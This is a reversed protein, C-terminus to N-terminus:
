EVQALMSELKDTNIKTKGIDYFRASVNVNMMLADLELSIYTLKGGKVTFQLRVDFSRLISKASELEEMMELYMTPDNFVEQSGSAITYLLEYLDPELIYTNGDQSFGANEKLWKANNLNDWVKDLYKDLKKFNVYQCAEEYANPGAQETILEEWDIDDEVSDYAEFIQHLEEAINEGYVGYDSGTLTYGKYIAAVIGNHEAYFTVDEKKEDVAAQFSVTQSEGGMDVSVEATFNKSLLTNQAGDWLVEAAGKRAFLGTALAVILFIVLVTGGLAPWLIKQPINKVKEIVGVKEKPQQPKKLQAGCNSCVQADGPMQQGCATCFVPMPAPAAPETKPQPAGCGPCFAVGDPLNKGCKGCFM